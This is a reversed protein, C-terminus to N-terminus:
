RPIEFEVPVSKIEVNIPEQRDGGPFGVAFTYIWPRLRNWFPRKPDSFRDTALEDRIVFQATYRGPKRLDYETLHRFGPPPEAFIREPHEFKVPVDIILPALAEGNRVTLGNAQTPEPVIDGNVSREPPLQPAVERRTPELTSFSASVSQGPTLRLHILSYGVSNSSSIAPNVDRPDYRYPNIGKVVTGDPKKVTIDEFNSNPRVAARGDPSLVSIFSGSGFRWDENWDYFDGHMEIIRNSRNSVTARYWVVVGHGRPQPTTKVELDAKLPECSDFGKNYIWQCPMDVRDVYKMMQLACLHIGEVAGILALAMVCIRLFSKFQPTM